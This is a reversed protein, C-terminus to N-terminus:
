WEVGLRKLADIASQWGQKASKRYWEIALTMNQQTGIGNEYCVALNAQGVSNGREAAISYYHVAKEKDESVWKGTEYM